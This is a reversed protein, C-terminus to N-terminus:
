TRVWAYAWSHTIHRKARCRPRTAWPAGGVDLSRSDVRQAPLLGPRPGPALVSSPQASAGPVAAQAVASRRAVVARIHRGPGFGEVREIAFGAQELLTPLDQLFDGLTEWLRAFATGLRNGDDPLAIDVVVLRGGPRCVRAIEALIPELDRLGSLAFTSVVCDFERDPFPLAAATGRVIRPPLDARALRRQTFACMGRALDLGVALSARRALALHLRGPGFGVELVRVGDPVFELARRVLRWWVGLTLRDLAGYARPLEDYVVENFFRLWREQSASRERREMPETYPRQPLAVCGPPM